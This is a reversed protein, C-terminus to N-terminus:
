LFACYPYYRNNSWACSTSVTPHLKLEGPITTMCHEDIALYRLTTLRGIHKPLFEFFKEGPKGFDINNDRLDLSVLSSFTNVFDDPLALIRNHQLNLDTVGPITGVISPLAELSFDRLHCTGSERAANICDVFRLVEDSGLAQVEPPVSELASTDIQVRSASM